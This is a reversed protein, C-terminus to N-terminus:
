VTPRKFPHAETNFVYEDLSVTDPESFILYFYKLTEALWFSEMYDQQDSHVNRVDDLAAHGYQTRCMKDISKFMRWAADQLAPDGTIRYMIFVSEIAEPRLKYESDGINTWGPPLGRKLIDKRAEAHPEDSTVGLQRNIDDYWKQEDWPCHERSECVSLYLNEPMIGTPMSDYAWICGDTLKRAIDLEDPRNFVKAGIGVMGGIYCKLHEAQPILTERTPTYARLDGPFLVNTGDKTMPRFLLRDNIPRMAADYMNRYQDTRGGLLMHEKPLYEYTSDGMAGVSYRPDRYVLDQADVMIPWLGPVTTEKQGKELNDTIRQTADFYKPDNTLQTMRTFELNLSGLEALVTNRSPVIGRGEASRTWEWRAQPMRNRTDFASYLVEAIETAKKLLIPHKGETLDHAALLGGLYRITTEFVNIDGADTVTFDIRELGELADELEDTLGMIVLSDLADVLTAAWGAFSNRYLGSLPSVEDKLWAHKKYGKWAHKFADKVAEQRKVRKRRAWWSETKFNHQIRPIPSPAETPMPIYSTVPYQEAHKTWRIRDDPHAHATPAEYTDSSDSDDTEFDASTEADFPQFSLFTYVLLILVLTPLVCSKRICLM